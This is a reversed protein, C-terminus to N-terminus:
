CLTACSYTLGPLVFQGCQMVLCYILFACTSSTDKSHVFRAQLGGYSVICAAEPSAVALRAGEFTMEERLM